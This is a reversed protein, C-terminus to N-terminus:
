SLACAGSWPCVCKPISFNICAISFFAAATPANGRAAGAATEPSNMRTGIPNGALESVRRSGTM